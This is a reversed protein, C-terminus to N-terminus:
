GAFFLLPLVGLLTSVFGGDDKGEDEAQQDPPNNQDQPPAEPPLMPLVPDDDPVDQAAIERVADTYTPNSMEIMLIERPALDAILIGDALLASADEHTIQPEASTFTPNEGEAVGLRTISVEGSQTVLNNFDVVQESQGDSTSAIFTVLRDQAYFSHVDATTGQLETERGASGVLALPRTGPLVENMLRFMEGAVRMEADGEVEALATRSNLQLAWAHAADVGGWHFAEVINLMEHAQKLGFEEERTDGVTRKLNWETAYVKLDPMEELWADGIQSLEFYRSGPVDEGRSYIHAVIGDVAAREADTDFQDMLIANNVKSWAVEGSSYIYGEESLSLGFMQNAAALQESGTGDFLGSLDSVGHNTGMQVLIDTDAFQPSAPHRSMEDEVILAMESALRGYEVTNMEGSGWYENGIEFAQIVPATGFNGEAIDAIFQRVAAEDVDAFRHGNEDSIDTLFDRTPLVITLAIGAQTAYSFMETVSTQVPEDTTRPPDSLRDTEYICACNETLAGGPYRLHAMGLTAATDAFTGNTGVVDRTALLNGGFHAATFSPGGVDEISLIFPM